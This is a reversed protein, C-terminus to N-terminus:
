KCLRRAKALMKPMDRYLLTSSGLAVGAEYAGDDPVDPIYVYSRASTAGSYLEEAVGSVRSEIHDAFARCPASSTAYSLDAASRRVGQWASALQDDLDGLCNRATRFDAEKDGTNPAGCFRDSPQGAYKEIVLLPRSIRRVFDAYNRSNSCLTVDVQRSKSKGQKPNQACIRDASAGRRSPHVRMTLGAASADSEASSPAEGVLRPITHPTMSDVVSQIGKVIASGGVVVVILGLCGGWALIGRNRESRSSAERISDIRQGFTLSDLPKARDRRRFSLKASDVPTARVALVKDVTWRRQLFRPSRTTCIVEDGERIGYRAVASAVLYLDGAAAAVVGGYGPPIEANRSRFYGGEIYDFSAM